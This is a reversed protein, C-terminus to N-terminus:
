GVGFYPSRFCSRQQICCSPGETILSNCAHSVYRVMNILQANVVDVIDGIIM